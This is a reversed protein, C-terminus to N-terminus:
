LVQSMVFLSRSPFSFPIITAVNAFQRFGDSPQYRTGSLQFVDEVDGSLVWVKAPM